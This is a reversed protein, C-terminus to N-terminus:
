GAPPCRFVVSVRQVTGSTVATCAPGHLDITTHAADTYDWGNTHSTDRPITTGNGLIDVADLSGSAPPAGLALRCTRAVNVLGRLTTVLEDASTVPYYLPTGARPYGGAEAMASLTVDATGIQLGIGVVFTSFGAARAATVAQVAAPSDDNNASGSMPCNPMGDTALVVFKPNPDTVVSLYTAAANMAARTPTQSGGTLGGTASTRGAVATAIAGANNSAIPVAVGPGVGCTSSTDAFFKLGWDVDAETMAVVQLIAPTMQAWKSTPGCGTSGCSAESLDNNMSGSADLLLLIDPKGTLPREVSACIADGAADGVGADGNTGASGATGGGTGASGGSGGGASGGAGASGSAGAGAGGSGATGGGASGGTGAAGGSTGAAGGSTGAAGGSGAGGGTGGASGGSGAGDGAAGSAGGAGASGGRGTASGGKGGTGNSSSGGCGVLLGAVLVLGLNVRARM